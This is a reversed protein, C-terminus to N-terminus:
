IFDYQAEAIPCLITATGPICDLALLQNNETIKELPDGTFNIEMNNSQPNLWLGGNYFYVGDTYTARIIFPISFSAMDSTNFGDPFINGMTEASFSSITRTGDNFSTLWEKGALELKTPASVAVYLENIRTFIINFTKGGEDSTNDKDLYIWVKHTTYQTTRDMVANQLPDEFRMKKKVPLEDGEVNLENCTITNASIGGTFTADTGNLEHTLRMEYANISGGNITTSYSDGEGENQIQLPRKVSIVGDEYDSTITNTILNGTVTVNLASLESNVTANETVVFGPTITTEGSNAGEETSVYKGQLVNALEKMSLSLCKAGANEGNDDDDNAYYMNLITRDNGIDIQRGDIKVLNTNETGVNIICEILNDNGVNIEGGKINTVPTINEGVNIQQAKVTVLPTKYEGIKINHGDIITDNNLHNGIYLNAFTNDDIKDMYRGLQLESGHNGVQVKKGRVYITQTTDKESTGIFIASDKVSPNTGLSIAKTIDFGTGGGGGGGGSAAAENILEQLSKGQDKFTVDNLNPLLIGRSQISVSATNNGGITINQVTDATGFDKANKISTAGKSNSQICDLLTIEKKTAQDFLKVKDPLGLQIISASTAYNAKTFSKCQFAGTNDMSCSNNKFSITNSVTLAGCEIANNGANITTCTIAKCSLANTATLKACKVNGNFTFDNGKTGLTTLTGATNKIYNDFTDEVYGRGTPLSVKLKDSQGLKVLGVGQGATNNVTLAGCTINDKVKLNDNITVLKTQPAFGSVNTLYTNIFTPLTTFGQGVKLMVLTPDGLDMFEGRGVGTKKFSVVEMKGLNQKDKLAEGVEAKIVNEIPIGRDNVLKGGVTVDGNFTSNGNVELNCPRGNLIVQGTHPNKYDQSGIYTTSLKQPDDPIAVDFAPMFGDNENKQVFLRNNIKAYQTASLRGTTVSTNNINDIQVPAGGGGAAILQDLQQGNYNIIGTVNLTTQRGQSGMTIVDGRAELSSTVVHTQPDEREGVTLNTTHLENSDFSDIIASEGTVLVADLQDFKKGQVSRALEDDLLKDFNAGTVLM